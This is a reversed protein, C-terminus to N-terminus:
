FLPYIFPALAGSTSSFFILIGMALIVLILPIMWWLKEKWLFNLFENIIAFRKRFKILFYIFASLVIILIGFFVYFGYNSSKEIHLNNDVPQETIAALNATEAVTSTMATDTNEM